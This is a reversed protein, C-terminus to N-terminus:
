YAVESVVRVQLQYKQDAGAYCDKVYIKKDGLYDTVKAFLKDYIDQGIPRNIEGWDMDDHISSQDVIFRDTPSRGTYKGTLVRLAYDNTLVAEGNKIAEEYLEPPTLNWLTKDNKQLDLYDLGITSTPHTYKRM